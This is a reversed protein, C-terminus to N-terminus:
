FLIDELDQTMTTRRKQPVKIMLRKYVKRRTGWQRKLTENSYDVFDFVKPEKAPNDPDPRMIRGVAQEVSAGDSGKRDGVMPMTLYLHELSPIDLGERVLSGTALLYMHNGENFDKLIEQRKKSSTKGIIMPVDFGEMKLLGQLHELYAIRDAIILTKQGVSNSKFTDVVLNGRDLDNTLDDLLGTYGREDGLNVSDGVINMASTSSFKTYIPVLEPTILKGGELLESRDIRMIIDGLYGQLLHNMGDKREPTATVGYRKKTNFVKLVETFMASPANHAEDVMVLGVLQNLRDTISPRKRLTQVMGIFIDADEYLRTKGNGILCPSTGLVRQVSGQLQYMLEKRHVLILTKKQHAMAIGMMGITKGAGAPAVIVGTDNLDTASVMGKQYPRLEIYKNWRFPIADKGEQRKDVIEYQINLEDMGERLTPLYGIPVTWVGGNLIEYINLLKPTSWTGLGLQKKKQYEPNSIKMNKRIWSKLLDSPKTLYVRSSLVLQEM